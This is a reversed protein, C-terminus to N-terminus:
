LVNSCFYCSVSFFQQGLVCRTRTRTLAIANKLSYNIESLRHM